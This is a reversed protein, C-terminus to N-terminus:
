LYLLKTIPRWERLLSDVTETTRGSSTGGQLKAMVPSGCPSSCTIWASETARLLQDVINIINLTTINRFPCTVPQM